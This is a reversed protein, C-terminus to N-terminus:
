DEIDPRFAADDIDQFPLNFYRSIFSNTSVGNFPLDGQRVGHDTEPFTSAAKRGSISSSPYSSTTEAGAFRYPFGHLFIPSAIIRSGM